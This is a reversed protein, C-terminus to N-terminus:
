AIQALFELVTRNFEDPIDTNLAHGGGELVVLRANPISAALEESLTFPAFFDDKGALVLTPATIRSLRGRAYHEVCAIFQRAIAHDPAPCSRGAIMDIAMQVMEPNEFTKDTFIFPLMLQFFAKRSIGEMVAGVWAELIHTELVYPGASTSALMLSKIRGPHRIALEQAIYGGMSKGLVHAEDVGLVNMLGATDDAMMEISYPIDPADTRGVGRNDFAIVRYRRSFEPTQLMWGSLDSGLGMILLLPEGEGHVECHMNIDGVRVQLM